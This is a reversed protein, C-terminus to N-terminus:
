RSSFLTRGNVGSDKCMPIFWKGIISRLRGEKSTCGLEALIFLTIKNMGGVEAKELIERQTDVRRYPALTSLAALSDLFLPKSSKGPKGREALFLQPTTSLARGQVTGQSPPDRGALGCRWSSLGTTRPHRPSKQGYSAATWKGRRGQAVSEDKDVIIQSGLKVTIIFLEIQELVLLDLSM